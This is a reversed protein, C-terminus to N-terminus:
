KGQTRPPIIFVPYNPQVKMQGSVIVKDGAILGKVVQVSEGNRAGTRIPAMKAVGQEVIYVYEQKGRSEVASEPVIITNQHIDTRLKVKAFLGPRLDGDVNDFTGQVRISHALPDVNTDIAEITAHYKNEPFGEVNIEIQDGIRFKNLVVETIKFDIKMPDMDDVTCLEDGPKLYRGPSLDVIGVVGEFPAYLVTKALQAQSFELDAESKLLNAHADEKDKESLAGKSFLAQARKYVSRANVLKSESEKLRARYMDDDLTILKDGKKVQQGSKVFIEKIKADIEPKMVVSKNSRLTGVVTVFQEFNGVKAEVAEVAIKPFTPVLPGSKSAMMQLGIWTGMGLIVITQIVIAFHLGGNPHNFFHAVAKNTL